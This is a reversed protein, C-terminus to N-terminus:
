DRYKRITQIREPRQRAGCRPCYRAKKGIPFGCDYCRRIANVRRCDIARSADREANTM